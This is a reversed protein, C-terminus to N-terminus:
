HTATLKARIAQNEALYPAGAKGLAELKRQADEVAALAEAYRGQNLRLRALLQEGRAYLVHQAGFQAAIAQVTQQLNQDASSENLAIQVEAVSLMITLTTLSHEGTFERAMTLADMLLPRAAAARGDHMMVKALNQQMAALAASRGYLRRRLEAARRFLPEARAYDGLRAVIVAQNSLMTLANGTDQKGLAAMIKLCEDLVRDAEQLQGADMLALALANMIYATERDTRGSIAIRDALGARLTRIAGDIDGGDRQLQSQIVRSSALSGAYRKPDRNWFAQAQGLLVRARPADGLSFEAVADDHRIEAVIAPDASPGAIKIYDRYIPAAGAFDGIAAYLEGIMQFMGARQAAPRSPDAILNAASRDLVQKATLEGGAADEGAERFMLMMYDRAADSRAAETRAIDREREAERAQWATGALGAALMAILVLVAAVAWRHRRLFHGLLYTRATGRALVTEGRLHRRVDAHLGAVAAYRERPEKRLTRAVIADIDGTLQRAPVPQSAQRAAIASPAPATERLLKEVAIAMPQQGVPWPVRGTTLEFLLVGLSYVDAATTVENRALQEPAAYSLTMPAHSASDDADDNLLKAVGFDLLKVHGDQNVIVNGPKLDRHVVLNQHAYAVADCIQLFLDLRERLNANRQRCWQTISVGDILEMVMYPRGDDAVGADYLRAIGPHELKALIQREAIFGALHEVADPRLLKLAVQQEFQGDAREARYVEGMGGRGVLSLIRYAGLRHGPQLDVDPERRVISDAAPRDLLDGRTEFEDLLALAEQRLRPADATEREIFARRLPPPQALVRNLLADLM